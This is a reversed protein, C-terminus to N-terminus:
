DIGCAFSNKADPYVAGYKTHTGAIHCVVRTTPDPSITISSNSHGNGNWLSVPTCVIIFGICEPSKSSGSDQALVNGALDKVRWAFFTTQNKESTNHWTVSVNNAEGDPVRLVCRAQGVWVNISCQNAARNTDPGQCTSGSLEAGICSSSTAAAAHAPALVVATLLAVPLLVLLKSRM